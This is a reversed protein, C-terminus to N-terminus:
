RAVYQVEAKRLIEDRFYRSLDKSTRIDVERGFLQSLKEEMEALGFFGPVNDPEFEILIDVDSEPSFDESLVSGFISLKVIHHQICFDELIEKSPIEINQVMSIMDSKQKYVEVQHLEENWIFM